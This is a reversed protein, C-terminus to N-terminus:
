IKMLSFLARSLESDPKELQRPEEFHNASFVETQSALRSMGQLATVLVESRRRFEPSDGAPWAVAV